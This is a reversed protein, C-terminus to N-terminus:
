SLGDDIRPLEGAHVSHGAFAPVVGHAAEDALDGVALLAVARQAVAEIDHARGPEDGERVQGPFQQDPALAM